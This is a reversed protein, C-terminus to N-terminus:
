TDFYIFKSNDITNPKSRISYIHKYSVSINIQNNFYFSFFNSTKLKIENKDFSQM